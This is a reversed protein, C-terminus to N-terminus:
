KLYFPAYATADQGILKWLKLLSPDLNSGDPDKQRHEPSYGPTGPMGKIGICRRLSERPLHLFKNADCRWLRCDFFPNDWATIVNVLKELMTTRIATQCLSAHRVNRCNSWWRRAVHYYIAEGEGVIDYGRNLSDEVWELYDPAEWDDDEIFAIADGTVQSLAQLVKTPMPTDADDMIIWQHPQLTQREVYKRCLDFAVSRGPTTCTIVSIKM